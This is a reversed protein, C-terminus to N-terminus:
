RGAVDDGGKDVNQLVGVELGLLLSTPGDGVGSRTTELLGILYSVKDRLATDLWHTVKEVRHVVLDDLNSKVTQLVNQLDSIDVLFSGTGSSGVLIRLENLLGSSHDVDVVQLVVLIQLNVLLTEVDHVTLSARLRDAVIVLRLIRGQRHHPPPRHHRGQRQRKRGIHRGIQHHTQRMPWVGFSLQNCDSSGLTTEVKARLGIVVRIEAGSKKEQTNSLTSRYIKLMM